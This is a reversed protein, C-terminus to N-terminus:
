GRLSRRRWAGYGAVVSGFLWAAAPVPVESPPPPADAVGLVFKYGIPQVPGTQTTEGPISRITEFYGNADGSVLWQPLGFNCATLCFTVLGIAGTGTFSLESASAELLIGVGSVVSNGGSLPGLLDVSEGNIDLTLSWDLINSYLLQGTTGDTEIVGAVTGDGIARDVTYVVAGAGTPAFAAGFTLAAGAAIAKFAKM